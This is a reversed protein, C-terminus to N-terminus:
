PEDDGATVGEKGCGPCVLPMDPPLMDRGKRGFNTGRLPAGCIACKGRQAVFKKANLARRRSAARREAASLKSILRKRLVDLLHNDGRSLLTLREELEGILPDLVANTDSAEGEGARSPPESPDGM